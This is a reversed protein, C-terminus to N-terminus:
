EEDFRITVSEGAEVKALPLSEGNKVQIIQAPGTVQTPVRRAGRQGEPSFPDHELGVESMVSSLEESVIEELQEKTLKVNELLAYVEREFNDWEDKHLALGSLVDEVAAGVAADDVLGMSKIEAAVDAPTTGEASVTERVMAGIEERVIQELREKTLTSETYSKRSTLGGYGDHERERDWKDLRARRARKFARLEEEEKKKKESDDHWIIAGDTLTALEEEVIQKLQQNTLKM